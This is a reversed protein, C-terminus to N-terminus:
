GWCWWGAILPDFYFPDKKMRDRFVKAEDSLVLWHHRSHLDAENVPGDAHEAVAEPAHQTARWFNAVMCDIDNITEVRPQHPRVLLVAASGCFPECYNDVDGLRNWVIKAIKSKGGFYPFPCKLVEM